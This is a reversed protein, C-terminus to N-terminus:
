SQLLSTSDDQKGSLSSAARPQPRPSVLPSTTSRSDSPQSSKGCGPAPTPRRVSPPCLVIENEAQLAMSSALSKPGAGDATLTARSLL